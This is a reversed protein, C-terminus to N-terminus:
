IHPRLNPPHCTPSFKQGGTMRLLISYFAHANLTPRGEMKQTERTLVSSTPEGLAPGGERFGLRARTILPPQLGLSDHCVSVNM